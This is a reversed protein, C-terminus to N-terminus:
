WPFSGAKHLFTGAEDDRKGELIEILPTVAESAPKAGYKAVHHPGINSITFGPDFAFVKIDPGYEVWQCATVMHLAAKSARYQVEQLQYGPRNPDLRLAISGVGCSLNIIRPSTNSKQLLPGFAKTVVAPGIANTDFAQRMQDRLPPTTAAIGANNVLIDLKGHNQEVQAAAREITDDNTVDLLLMEVSGALNQSQLDKVAANGKESSRSGLLVHYSGKALLQTM